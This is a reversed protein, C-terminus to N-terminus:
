PYPSPRRLPFLYGLKVYHEGDCPSWGSADAYSGKQNRALHQMAAYLKIVM